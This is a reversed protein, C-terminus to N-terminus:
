HILLFKVISGEKQQSLRSLEYNDVVLVRPYGGTTPADRMLVIPDGSPPLQVVGPFVPGSLISHEHRLSVSGTAKLRYGIRSLPTTITFHGAFLAKRQALTLLGFEPGQYCRVFPDETPNEEVKPMESSYGTSGGVTFISGPEIASMGLSSLFSRSGMVPSTNIGGLVGLYGWVGDFVPGCQILDGKNAQIPKTREVVQHNNITARRFHDSLALTCTEQVKLDPGYKFCELQAANSLNQLIHNVKLFSLQDMAGGIPVGISTYAKRGLDQISLSGYLKVISIM